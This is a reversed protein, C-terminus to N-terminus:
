FTAGGLNGSDEDEGIQEIKSMIGVGESKEVLNFYQLTGALMPMAVILYSVVMGLMILATMVVGLMGTNMIEEGGESTIQAIGMVIGVPIMLISGLFNAVMGVVFVIGLTEWWYGKVLQMSRSLAAFVGIPEYLRAAFFPALTVLFYIYGVGFALVMLIGFFIGLTDGLAAGIFVMGIMLLYIGVGIAGLVLLTVFIRGFSARTAQWVDQVDFGDPGREMYLFVFQNVVGVMLLTAIVGVLLGVIISIAAGAQFDELMGGDNLSLLLDIYNWGVLVGTILAPPGVIYLISMSLKKFNERLFAFTLNVLEGFGRARRIELPTSSTTM